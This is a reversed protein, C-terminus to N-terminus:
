QHQHLLGQRILWQHLLTLVNQPIFAYDAEEVEPMPFPNHQRERQMQGQAKKLDRAERAMTSRYLMQEVQASAGGGGGRRRLCSSACLFYLVLLVSISLAIWALIWLVPVRPYRAALAQALSLAEEVEAPRSSPRVGLTRRNWGDIPRPAAGGAAPRAAVKSLLDKGLARRVWDHSEDHRRLELHLDAQLLCVHHPEGVLLDQYPREDPLQEGRLAGPHEARLRSPPASAWRPEPCASCPAALAAAAAAKVAWRPWM